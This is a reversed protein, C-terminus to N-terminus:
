AGFLEDVNFDLHDAGLVFNLSNKKKLWLRKPCGPLHVAPLYLDGM